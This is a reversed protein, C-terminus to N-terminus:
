GTPVRWSSLTNAKFSIGAANGSQGNVWSTSTKGGGRAERGHWRFLRAARRVRARGREAESLVRRRCIAGDTSDAGASSRATPSAIVSSIVSLSRATFSFVIVSSRADSSSRRAPSTDAVTCRTTMAYGYPATYVPEVPYARGDRSDYSEGYQGVDVTIRALYQTVTETVGSRRLQILDDASLESDLRARRAKVYAVITADSLGAKTMRVVDNLFSNSFRTSSFEGQAFAFASVFISVVALSVSRKIVSNLM